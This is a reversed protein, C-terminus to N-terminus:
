AARMRDMTRRATAELEGWNEKFASYAMGELGLHVEYCLLREDLDPVDLGIERYHRRAEGPWDINAMAPYWPTHFSFLALDRLFDGGVANGWDIVGAIRDGAVLVNRHLLDNHLLHSADPCVGIHARLYALAANYPGIGTPSAALRDHWGFVRETENDIDLLQEAWPVPATGVADAWRCFDADRLADLARLVAPVLREMGEADADDIMAGFVRESLCFFGGPAPGTALVRPIPLADSSFGAAIRDKEFDEVFAGFRAVLDRGGFRVAFALSWDGGFLPEVGSVDGGLHSSLFREIDQIELKLM